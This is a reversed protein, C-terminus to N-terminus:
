IAEVTISCDNIMYRSAIDYFLKISRFKDFNMKLDKNMIDKQIM